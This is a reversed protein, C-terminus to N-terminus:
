HHWMKPFLSGYDKQKYAEGCTKAAQGALLFSVIKGADPGQLVPVVGHAQREALVAGVIAAHFAFPVGHFMDPAPPNTALVQDKLDLSRAPNDHLAFFYVLPNDVYGPILKRQVRGLSLEHEASRPLMKGYGPGAPM